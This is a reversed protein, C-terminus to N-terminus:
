NWDQCREGYFIVREGKPKDLELHARYQEVTMRDKAHNCSKCAMVLNQPDNSGGVFRSDQHDLTRQRRRPKTGCYWCRGRSKEGVDRRAFKRGEYTM